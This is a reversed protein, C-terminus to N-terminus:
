EEKQVCAHSGGGEACLCGVASSPLMNQWVAAHTSVMALHVVSCKKHM